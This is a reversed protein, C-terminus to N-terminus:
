SKTAAQDLAELDAESFKSKSEIVQSSQKPQHKRPSSAERTLSM